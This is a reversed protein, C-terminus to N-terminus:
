PYFSGHAYLYFGEVVAFYALLILIVNLWAASRNYNNESM